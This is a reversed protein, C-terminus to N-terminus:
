PKKRSTVRRYYDIKGLLSKNPKTTAPCIPIEYSAACRGLLYKRRYKNRKFAISSKYVAKPKSVYEVGRRNSTSFASFIHNNSLLKTRKGAELPSFGCHISPLNRISHGNYKCAVISCILFNTVRFESAASSLKDLKTLRCPQLWEFSSSHFVVNAPFSLSVPDSYTFAKIYERIGCKM